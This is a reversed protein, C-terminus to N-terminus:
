SAVPLEVQEQLVRILMSAQKRDIATIASVGFRELMEHELDNMSLGAERALARLFMLQRNSAVQRIPVPQGSMRANEDRRHVAPALVTSESTDRQQRNGPDFWTTRKVPSGTFAEDRSQDGIPLQMQCPPPTRSVSM